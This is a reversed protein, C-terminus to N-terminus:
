KGEARRKTGAKNILDAYKILFSTREKFPLSALIQLVNDEDVSNDVVQTNGISADEKFAELSPKEEVVVPEENQVNEEEKSEEKVDSVEEKDSEKEEAAKEEIVDKVAEKTDEVIEKVEEVVKEVKPAIMKARAVALEVKARLDDTLNSLGTADFINILTEAAIGTQEDTLDFQAMVKSAERFVIANSAENIPKMLEAQKEAQIRQANQIIDQVIKLKAPDKELDELSIAPDIGYQRFTDEVANALKENFEDYTKVAQNIAEARAEEMKRVEEAEKMADLEAKVKELEDSEEVVEETKEEKEESEEQKEEEEVKEEEVKEDTEEEPKEAEESKEEDNSQSEEAKEETSDEDNDTAEEPKSDEEKVEEETKEESAEESEVKEKEQQEEEHTEEEEVVPTEAKIEEEVSLTEEGPKVTIIEDNVNNNEIPEM